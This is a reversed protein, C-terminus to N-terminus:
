HVLVPQTFNVTGFSNSDQIITIKSGVYNTSEGKHKYILVKALHHQYHEVLSPLWLIISEGICTSIWVMWWRALSFIPLFWGGITQIDHEQSTECIRSSATQWRSPGVNVKLVANCSYWERFDGPVESYLTSNRMMRSDDKFFYEKLMSIKSIWSTNMLHLTLVLQVTIPNTLPADFNTSVIHSEDVQEYRRANLRGQQTENSKEKTKWTITLNKSRLILLSWPVPTM